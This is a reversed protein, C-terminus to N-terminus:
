KTHTTGCHAGSAAAHLHPSLAKTDQTSGSHHLIQTAKTTEEENDEPIMDLKVPVDIPDTIPVMWRKFPPLTSTANVNKGWVM